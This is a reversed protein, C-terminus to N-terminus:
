GTVAQQHPGLQGWGALSIRQNKFDIINTNIHLSHTHTAKKHQSIITICDLGMQLDQQILRPSIVEARKKKRM